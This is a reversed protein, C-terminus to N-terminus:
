GDSNSSSSPLHTVPESISSPSRAQDSAAPPYRPRKVRLHRRDPFLRHRGTVNHSSSLTKTTTRSSPGVCPGDIRVPVAPTARGLSLQRGTRAKSMGKADRGQYLDADRGWGKRARWPHLARVMRATRMLVAQARVFRSYGSANRMLPASATATIFEPLVGRRALTECLYSKVIAPCSAQPHDHSGQTRFKSVQAATRLVVGSGFAPKTVFLQVEAVHNRRLVLPQPNIRM